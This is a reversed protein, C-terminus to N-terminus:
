KQAQKAVAVDPSRLASRSSSSCAGDSERRNRGDSEDKFNDSFM